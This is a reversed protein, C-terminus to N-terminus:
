GWGFGSFLVQSIVILLIVFSFISVVISILIMKLISFIRGKTEGSNYNSNIQFLFFLCGFIVASLLAGFIIIDRSIWFAPVIPIAIIFGLSLVLLIIFLRMLLRM